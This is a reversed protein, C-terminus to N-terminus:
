CFFIIVQYVGLTLNKLEDLSLIPFDPLSSDTIDSWCATRTALRGNQVREQLTNKNSYRRKMEQAKSCDKSTDFVRPPKFANCFAAVICVDDGIYPIHSNAFM